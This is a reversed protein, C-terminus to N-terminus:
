IEKHAPADLRARRRSLETPLAASKYDTPRPNSDELRCWILDSFCLVLSFFCRPISCGLLRTRATDAFETERRLWVSFAGGM